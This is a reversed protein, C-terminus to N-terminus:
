FFSLQTKSIPAPKARRTKPPPPAVPPPSLESEPAPAYQLPIRIFSGAASYPNSLFNNFEAQWKFKKPAYHKCIKAIARIHRLCRAHQEESYKTDVGLLWQIELLRVSPPLVPLDRAFAEAAGYCFDGRHAVGFLCVEKIEPSILSAPFKDPVGVFSFYLFKCSQPLTLQDPIKKVQKFNNLWDTSSSKFDVISCAKFQPSIWSVPRARDAIFHAIHGYGLSYLLGELYRGKRSLGGAIIRALEHNNPDDSLVLDLLAKDKPSLRSVPRYPM